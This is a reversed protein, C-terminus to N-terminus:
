LLKTLQILAQHVLSAAREKASPFFEFGVWYVTAREAYDSIVIFLCVQQNFYYICQEVHM